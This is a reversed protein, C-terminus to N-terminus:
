ILPDEGLWDFHVDGSDTASLAPNVADTVTVTVTAWASSSAGSPTSADASCTPTASTTNYIAIDSPTPTGNKTTPGISWQYNVPHPTAGKVFYLTVSQPRSINGGGTRTGNTPVYRIAYLEGPQTAGTYVPSPPTYTAGSTSSSGPELGEDWAFSATCTKTIVIGTQIDTLQLQVQYTRINFPGLAPTAISCYESTAGTLTGDTDGGVISWNWTLPPKYGNELVYDPMIAISLVETTNTWKAHNKLSVSKLTTAKGAHAFLGGLDTGSSNRFGTVPYIVNWTYFANAFPFRRRKQFILIRLM